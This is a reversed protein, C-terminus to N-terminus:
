QAEDEEAVEYRNVLQSQQDEALLAYARDKEM